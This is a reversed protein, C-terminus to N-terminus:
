TLAAIRNGFTPAYKMVTPLIIAYRGGWRVELWVGYYIDSGHGLLITFHTDDEWVVAGQLGDRAAGTRDLWSANQKMDAVMEDKLSEAASRLGEKVQQEWQLLNSDIAALGQWAFGWGGAFRGKSDRVQQRHYERFISSGGEQFPVNTMLGGTKTM